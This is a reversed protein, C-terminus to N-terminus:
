RAHCAKIQALRAALAWYHVPQGAMTVRASRWAAVLQLLESLKAWTAEEALSASTSVRHVIARGEGSARYGPISQALGVARPYQASPSTGFTIELLPKM